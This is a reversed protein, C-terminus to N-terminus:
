GLRDKIPAVWQDIDGAGMTVVVDAAELWSEALLDSKQVVKKPTSTIKDLLLQSDVGDIPLERAPYVPLLIVEDALSLSASFESAFDRTRTYLHPQFVATIRREPFMEKVSLLTAEIERPHHAYDDIYVRTATNIHVDFRRHVGKFSALAHRIEDLTVGVELCLLTAALANEINHRGPIGLRFGEQITGSIVLDFQYQGDVVHINTAGADYGEGLGYNLTKAQSSSPVSSHKILVGGHQVHSAFEDFSEQLSAKDQYIDLHDADVSTIVAFNPTLALFSRDFEDAEVVTLANKESLIVNTNYNATIGGIFANCGRGSESLIHAVIATTTTKGHTGAIALSTSANALQGLVVSRKELRFGTARFWNLIVSDDPIAPTYVALVNEKEREPLTAPLTSADDDYSIIMGENELTRTLDTATRDYGHVECGQSNFYRALASMGIGGIGIFYVMELSDFDMPSTHSSYTTM